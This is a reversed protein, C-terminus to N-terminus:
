SPDSSDEFMNFDSRGQETIMEEQYEFKIEPSDCCGCGWVSMRIGHSALIETVRKLEAEKKAQYEASLSEWNTDSM